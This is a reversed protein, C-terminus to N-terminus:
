LGLAKLGERHGSRHGPRFCAGPQDGHTLVCFLLLGESRVATLKASLGAEVRKIGLRDDESLHDLAAALRHECPGEFPIPVRRLRMAVQDLDFPWELRALPFLEGLYIPDLPNFGFGGM